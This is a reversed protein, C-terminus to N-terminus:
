NKCFYMRSTTFYFLRTFLAALNKKDGFGELNLWEMFSQRLLCIHIALNKKTWVYLFTFFYILHGCVTGSSWLIYWAATFNGLHDYLFYWCKGNWPGGFDVRIAIKPMLIFWRAVM